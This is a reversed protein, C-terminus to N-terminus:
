EQVLEYTTQTKGSYHNSKEQIQISGLSEKIKSKFQSIADNLNIEENPRIIIYEPFIVYTFLLLEKDGKSIKMANSHRGNILEFSKGDEETVLYTIDDLKNTYLFENGFLGRQQSRRVRELNLSPIFGAVSEPEVDDPITENNPKLISYISKIVDITEEKIFKSNTNNLMRDTKFRIAIRSYAKFVPESINKVIQNIMYTKIEVNPNSAQMGSSLQRDLNDIITQVITARAYSNINFKLLIYTCRAM